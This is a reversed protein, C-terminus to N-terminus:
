WGWDLECVESDTLDFDVAQDRPVLMWALWPGEDCNEIAFLEPNTRMEQLMGEMFLRGDHDNPEIHINWGLYIQGVTGYQNEITACIGEDHNYTMAYRRVMAPTAGRRLLHLNDLQDVESPDVTFLPPAWRPYVHEYNTQGRARGPTANLAGDDSYNSVESEPLRRCTNRTCHGTEYAIGCSRCTGAQTSTGAGSGYLLHEPYPEWLEEDDAVRRQEKKPFLRDWPGGGPAGLDNGNGAVAKDIIHILDRALFLPTPREFVEARCSPCTKRVQASKKPLSPYFWTM